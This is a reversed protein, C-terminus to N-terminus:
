ASFYPGSNNINSRFKNSENYINCQGEINYKNLIHNVIFPKELNKNKARQYLNSGEM